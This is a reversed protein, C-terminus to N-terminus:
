LLECGVITFRNTAYGVAPGRTCGIRLEGGAALTYVRQYSGSSVGQRWNIKVTVRVRRDSRNNVVSVNQGASAFGCNGIYKLRCSSVFVIPAVTYTEAAPQFTIGNPCHYDEFVVGNPLARCQERSAVCGFKSGLPTTWGCCVGPCSRRAINVNPAGPYCYKTPISIGRYYSRCGDRITITKQWRGQCDRHYCCVFESSQLADNAADSTSDYEQGSAALALLAVSAFAFALVFNRPSM